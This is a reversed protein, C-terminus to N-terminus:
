SRYLRRQFLFYIGRSSIKTIYYVNSYIVVWWKIRISSDLNRVQMKVIFHLRNCSSLCLAVRYHKLSRKFVYGRKLLILREWYISRNIGSGIFTIQETRGNWWFSRLKKWIYLFLNEFSPYLTLTWISSLTCHWSLCVSLSDCHSSSRRFSKRYHHM